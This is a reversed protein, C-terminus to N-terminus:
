RDECCYWGEEYCVSMLSETAAGKYDQAHRNRTPDLQSCHTHSSVSEPAWLPWSLWPENTYCQLRRWIGEPIQLNKKKWRYRVRDEQWKSSVCATFFVLCRNKMAHLEYMFKLIYIYTDVIRLFTQNSASLFYLYKCSHTMTSTTVTHHNSGSM